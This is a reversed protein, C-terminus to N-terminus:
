GNRLGVTVINRLRNFNEHYITKSNDDSLRAQEGYPSSALLIATLWMVGESYRSGWVTSNIQLKAADIKIGILTDGAPIFEPFSAKFSAVTVAM